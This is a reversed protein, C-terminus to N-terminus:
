PTKLRFFANGPPAPLTVQNQGDVVNVPETVNAWNTATLDENQQLVFNTSFTASWSLAVGDGSRTISLVPASQSPGGTIVLKNGNAASVTSYWNELTMKQTVDLDFAASVKRVSVRAVIVSGKTTASLTFEYEGSASIVNWTVGSNDSFYIPGDDCVSVLRTKDESSFVTMWDRDRWNKSAYYVRGRYYGATLHIENTLSARYIEEDTMGNTNLSRMGRMDYDTIVQGGYKASGHVQIALGEHRQWLFLRVSNNYYASANPVRANLTPTLEVDRIYDFPGNSKPANTKIWSQGSEDWFQREYAKPPSSNTAVWTQTFASNVGCGFASILLLHKFFKM